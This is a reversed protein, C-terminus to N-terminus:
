RASPVRLHKNKLGFPKTYILKSKDGQWLLLLDFRSPDRLLYRVKEVRPSEGLMIEAFDVHLKQSDTLSGERLLKVFALREKDALTWDKMYKELLAVVRREIFHAQLSSKLFFEREKLSLGTFTLEGASTM